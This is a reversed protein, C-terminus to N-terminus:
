GIRLGRDPVIHNAAQWSAPERRSGKRNQDRVAAMDYPRRFVDRGHALQALHQQGVGPPPLNSELDLLRIDLVQLSLQRLMERRPQGNACAAALMRQRTATVTRVFLEPRCVLSPLPCTIM